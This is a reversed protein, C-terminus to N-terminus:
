VGSAETAPGRKPRVVLGEFKSSDPAEESPAIREAQRQRARDIEQSLERVSPREFLMKLPLTTSLEDRLLKLLSTALLSHFGLDRLNDGVGVRETGLLKGVMAAVRTETETSPEAFGPPESARALSPVPLAARALKGNAGVPLAPLSVFRAPIMYEPLRERLFARLAATARAPVGVVYAVLRRDLGADHVTM